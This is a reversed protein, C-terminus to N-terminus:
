LVRGTYPDAYIGRWQEEGVEYWYVLGRGPEHTLNVTHGPWQPVQALIRARLDLPDLMPADPAPREVVMLRPNCLAELEPYFALLSGTVGVVVLFTAITLGLYRHVVLWLPRWASHRRSSTSADARDDPM